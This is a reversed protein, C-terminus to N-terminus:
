AGVKSLMGLSGALQFLSLGARGNLGEGGKVMGGEGVGLARDRM